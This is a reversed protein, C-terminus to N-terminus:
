IYKSITKMWMVHKDDQSLEGSNPLIVVPIQLEAYLAKMGNYVDTQFSNFRNWDDSNGTYQEYFEPKKNNLQWSFETNLQILFILEPQPLLSLIENSRFNGYLLREKILFRHCHSDAFLLKNNSKELEDLISLNWLSFIEKFYRERDSEDIHRHVALGFDLPSAPFSPISLFVKKAFPHWSTTKYELSELHKLFSTKGCSDTGAIIPFKLM